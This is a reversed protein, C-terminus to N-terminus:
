CVLEWEGVGMKFKMILEPERVKDVGLVLQWWRTWGLGLGSM